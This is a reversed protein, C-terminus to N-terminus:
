EIIGVQVGTEKLLKITADMSVGAHIACHKKGNHVILWAVEQRHNMSEVSYPSNAHGYNPTMVSVGEPAYLAIRKIGIKNGYIDSDYPPSANHEYHCDDWDDGHQEILPLPTFYVFKEDVYCLKHFCKKKKLFTVTGDEARSSVRIRKAM